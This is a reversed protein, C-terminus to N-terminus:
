PAGASSGDFGADLLHAALAQPDADLQVGLGAAGAAEALRQLLSPSSQLSVWSWTMRMAGGRIMLCSSISQATSRSSFTSVVSYSDEPPGGRGAGSPAANRWGLAHARPQRATGPRGSGRPPSLGM